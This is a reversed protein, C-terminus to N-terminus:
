RIPLTRQGSGDLYSVIASMTAVKVLRYRCDIIACEFASFTAGTKVDRLTALTRGDPLNTLGTLELPVPPIPPPGPPVVPTPPEVRAPLPPPPPPPPPVGFRFPNRGVAPEDPVPELAGLKLAEPIQQAAPGPVGTDRVQANSAPAPAAAPDGWYQRGVVVLAVVLLALLILQRRRQPGPPPLLNM